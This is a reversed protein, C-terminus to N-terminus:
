RRGTARATRSGRASGPPAAAPSSCRTARGASPRRSGSRTACTRSTSGPGAPSRTIPRCCPTSSTASCSRATSAPTTAARLPALVGDRPDRRRRPRRAAGGGRRDRGGARAAHGRARGRAAAARRAGAPRRARDPLRRDAGRRAASRGARRARGGDARAARVARRRPRAPRARRGHAPRQPRGARAARPRGRARARVAAAVGRSPTLHLADAAAALTGHDAVARLARLAESRGSFTASRGRFMDM